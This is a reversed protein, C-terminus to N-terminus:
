SCLSSWIYARCPIPRLPVVDSPGYRHLRDAHLPILPAPSGDVACLPAARGCSSPQPSRHPPSAGVLHAPVLCTPLPSPPSAGELPAPDLITPPPPPPAEGDLPAPHLFHPLPSSPVSRHPLSAGSLPAPVLCTPLPSPPSAGDLPAPDFITPPPPPPSESDLQSPHLFAPLPPPPSAAAWALTPTTLDGYHGHVRLRYVLPPVRPRMREPRCGCVNGSGRSCPLQQEPLACFPRAFPVDATSHRSPSKPRAATLLSASQAGCDAQGIDNPRPGPWSMKSHLCIPCHIGGARNTMIIEPPHAPTSRGNASLVQPRSDIIPGQNPGSSTTAVCPREDVISRQPRLRGSSVATARDAPRQVSPRNPAHSSAATAPLGM